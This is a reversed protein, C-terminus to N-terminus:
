FLRRSTRLVIRFVTAAPVGADSIAAGGSVTSEVSVGAEWRPGVYTLAGGLRMRREATQSDLISASVPAGLRAALDLSDQATAFGYADPGKRWYGLTFGAAFYPTFRYLPAFDIGVYDGPDWVLPAWAARPAFFNTVPAVRRERTGPRQQGARLSLNLWLRGGVTLEQVLQGEVDTQHDGTSLDLLNHPSDQHGTPLRMLVGVTAAYAPRSVLRYRATVEADGAWFRKSRRTDAFPGAGFGVVSDELLAAFEAETIRGAPLLFSRTFVAVGYMTQLEQQIRAINAAIAQGGSSSSVPLFVAGGAHGPGYVTEDLANLVAHAESSLAQAACQPNGACGYGGAAINADLLALASNFQTFFSGYATDAGATIALPNAGLNSNATDITLRARVDVRVLPLTAGIALRDTIGLELGLATARREARVGLFTQGLRPVFTSDAGATRIDPKLWGLGSLPAPSLSDGTLAAGLPRRAGGFFEDQWIAITPDFTFRVTGRWPTDARPVAQAWIHSVGPSLGPFVLLVVLRAVSRLQRM